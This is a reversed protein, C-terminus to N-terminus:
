AGDGDFESEEKRRAERAAIILRHAEPESINLLKAISLSDHGLVRFWRDIYRDLDTM